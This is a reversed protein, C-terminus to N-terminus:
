GEIKFLVTCRIKLSETMPLTTIWQEKKLRQHLDEKKHAGFHLSKFSGRTGNRILAEGGATKKGGGVHSRLKGRKKTQDGNHQKGGGENEGETKKQASRHAL